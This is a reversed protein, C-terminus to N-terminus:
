RMQCHQVSRRLRRRREDRVSEATVSEPSVKTESDAACSDSLVNLVNRLIDYRDAIHWLYLVHEKTMSDLFHGRNDGCGLQEEGMRGYDDDDEARQGFGNGSLEWRAIMKILKARAEGFHKKVDDATIEIVPMDDLGLTIPHAFSVHLDPLSETIFLNSADNFYRAVLEYFTEPREASNRADLQARTMPDNLHMLADRCEDVCICHYMRLFPLNTNWPGSRNREQQKEAEASSLLEFLKKEEAVLFQVDKPEEVPNAQMWQVLKEKSWYNCSPAKFDAGKAMSRRKIEQKLHKVTPNVKKHFKMSKYPELDTNGLERGDHSKLGIAMSM